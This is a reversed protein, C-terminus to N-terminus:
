RTGDIEFEHLHYDDWEAVAQIIRHLRRLTTTDAVLIRRWIPPKIDMVTLKLQLLLPM